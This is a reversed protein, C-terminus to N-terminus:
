EHANDSNLFTFNTEVPYHDSGYSSSHIITNKTSLGKYFVYDIQIWPGFAGLRRSEGPWTAPNLSLGSDTKAVHFNSKMQYIAQSFHTANFDGAIILPGDISTSIELINKIRLLQLETTRSITKIGHINIVSILSGDSLEIQTIETDDILLTKLPFKSFIVLQSNKDDVSINCKEEVSPFASLFDQLDSIEQVNIVDYKECDIVKAIEAYNTNHTMKSFTIFSFSETQNHESIDQAREYLSLNVIYFPIALSPLALLSAAVQWKIQKLLWVLILLITLSVYPIVQGAFNLFKFVVVNDNFIGFLAWYALVSLSLFLIAKIAQRIM